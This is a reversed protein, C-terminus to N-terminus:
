LSAHDTRTLNPGVILMKQFSTSLAFFMAVGCTLNLHTEPSRNQYSITSVPDPNQSISSIDKVAMRRTSNHCEVSIKEESWTKFYSVSWRWWTAPRPSFTTPREKCRSDSTSPHGPCARLDKAQKYLMIVISWQRTHRALWQQQEANHNAAHNLM